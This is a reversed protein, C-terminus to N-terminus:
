QWAHPFDLSGLRAPSRGTYRPHSMDSCLQMQFMMVTSALRVTDTDIMRVIRTEDGRTKSSSQDSPGKGSQAVTNEHWLSSFHDAM